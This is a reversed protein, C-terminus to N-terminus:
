LVMFLYLFTVSFRTKGDGLQLLSVLFEQFHLPKIGHGALCKTGHANRLAIRIM